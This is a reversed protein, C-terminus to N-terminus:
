ENVITFGLNYTFFDGVYYDPGEVLTEKKRSLIYFYGNDFYVKHPGKQLPNSDKPYVLLTDGEEVYELLERM